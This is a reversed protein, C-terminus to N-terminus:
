WYGAPCREDLYYVKGFKGVIRQYKAPVEFLYCGCLGCQDQVRNPCTYCIDIRRMIIDSPALIPLQIRKRRIRIMSILANKFKTILARCFIKVKYWLNKELKVLTVEKRGYDICRVVWKRKHFYIFWRIARWLNSDITSSIGIMEDDPIDVIKLKDFKKSKDLKLKITSEIPDKVFETFIVKHIRDNDDKEVDNIQTASTAM